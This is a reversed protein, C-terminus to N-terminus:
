GKYNEALAKRDEKAIVLNGNADDKVAFAFMLANGVDMKTQEFRENLETIREKVEQEYKEQWYAVEEQLSDIQNCLSRVTRDFSGTNEYHKMTSELNSVFYHSDRSYGGLHGCIWVKETTHIAEKRKGGAEPQEV